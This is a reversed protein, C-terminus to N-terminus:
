ESDINKKQILPFSFVDFFNEDAYYGKETFSKDASVFEFDRSTIRTIQEMEPAQTKLEDALSASLYDKPFRDGNFYTVYADVSYLRNYNKHFKDYSLTNMIHLFAIMACTLGFTLCAFNLISYTKNRWLYRLAIKFFNKYM